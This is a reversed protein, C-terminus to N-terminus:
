QTDGRVLEVRARIEESELSRLHIAFEDIMGSFHREGQWANLRGLVLQCAYERDPPPASPASKELVGDQYFRLEGGGLVAAFHTWRGPESQHDLYLDTGFRWGEHPRLRRDPWAFRFTARPKGLHIAPEKSGAWDALSLISLHRPSKEKKQARYALSAVVGRAGIPHSVWTEITLDSGEPLVLEDKRLLGGTGGALNEGDLSLSSQRGERALDAGGEAVWGAPLDASQFDLYVLPEGGRFVLDRYGRPVDLPGVPPVLPSTQGVVGDEIDGLDGGHFRMAQGEVLLVRASSAGVVSVEGDHVQVGGKGDGATQLSFSTGLDVIELDRTYATFVTQKDIGTDITLSGAHLYASEKSLLELRGPGEFKAVAGSRFLLKVWGPGETEFLGTGLTEGALAVDSSEGSHGIVRAVEGAIQRLATLRPAITEEEIADNDELPLFTIGRAPRLVLTAVALLLALAAAALSAVVIGGSRVRRREDLREAAAVVTKQVFRASDAEDALQRGVREHFPATTAMEDILAVEIEALECLERLQGEDLASLDFDQSLSALSRDDAALEGLLQQFTEANM